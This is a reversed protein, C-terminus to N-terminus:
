FNLCKQIELYLSKNYWGMLNEFEEPTANKLEKRLLTGSVEDDSLGKMHQAIVVYSHEKFPRIESSDSPFPQFYGKSGDKKTYQLRGEDKQGYIFIACDKEPDFKELIEIPRYPQKTEVVNTIGYQKLVEKKLDFHFPSQYPDFKNSTAIFSNTGFKGKMWEYVKAHHPGPPQFRGPYIAIVKM